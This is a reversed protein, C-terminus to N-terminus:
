KRFLSTNTRGRGFGSMLPVIFRIMGMGIKMFGGFSGLFGGGGTGGLGGFLGGLGGSNGLLGALGGLGSINAKAKTSNRPLTKKGMVGEFLLEQGQLDRVIGFYCSGDRLVILVPEKNTVNRIQATTQAIKM